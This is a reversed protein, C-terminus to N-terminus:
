KPFCILFYALFICSIHFKEWYLKRISLNDALTYRAKARWEIYYMYDKGAEFQTIKKMSPIYKNEDSYWFAVPNSNEM